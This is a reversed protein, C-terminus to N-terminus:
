LVVCRMLCAVVQRPSSDFTWWQCASALLGALLLLLTEGAKAKTKAQKGRRRRRARDEGEGEGEGAKLRVKAKAISRVPMLLIVQDYM